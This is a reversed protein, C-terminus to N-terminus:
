VIERVIASVDEFKFYHLDYTKRKLKKGKKNIYQVFFSILGVCKDKSWEGSLSSFSQVEYRYGYAELRVVQGGTLYISYVKLEGSKQLDKYCGIIEPEYNKLLRDSYDM